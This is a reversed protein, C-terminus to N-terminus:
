VPRMRSVADHVTLVDAGSEIAMRLVERLFQSTCGFPSPKPGVDHTYLIAWGKRRANEALFEEIRSLPVRSYVPIGYLYCLDIVGYNIGQDSTRCSEYSRAVAEKGRLTVDGGPFSFSHLTYGELVEAVARRNRACQEEMENGSVTSSLVHGFTHCALEHGAAVLPPLDDARFIEGVSTNRGMLGMAAYYTGRVGLEDLVAGGAVLASRPFDDFGVSVIPREGFQVVLRRSCRRAVWKRCKKEVRSVLTM